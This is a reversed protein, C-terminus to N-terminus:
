SGAISLLSSGGLSVCPQLLHAGVKSVPDRSRPPDRDSCRCGGPTWDSPGTSARSVAGNSWSGDGARGPGEKGPCIPLVEAPSFPARLQWQMHQLARPLHVISEEAMPSRGKSRLRRGWVVTHDLFCPKRTESQKFTQCKAVLRVGPERRSSM